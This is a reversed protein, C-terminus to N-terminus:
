AGQSQGNIGERLSTREKYILVEIEHSMVQLICGHGGIFQISVPPCPVEYDHLTSTVQVYRDSWVDSVVM